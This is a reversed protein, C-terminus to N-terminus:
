PLTGPRMGFRHVNLVEACCAGESHLVGEPHLVAACAVIVTVGEPHLDGEPIYGRRGTIRFFM